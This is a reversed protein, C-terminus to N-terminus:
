IVKMKEKFIFYLFYLKEYPKSSKWEESNKMKEWKESIKKKKEKESDKMNVNLNRNSFENILKGFKNNDNYKPQREKPRDNILKQLIKM